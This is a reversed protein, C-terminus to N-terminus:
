KLSINLFNDEDIEAKLEMTGNKYTANSPITSSLIYKNEDFNNNPVFIYVMSDEAFSINPNLAYATFTSDQYQVKYEGISSDTCELITAKVTYDFDAKKIKNKVIIDIANCIIEDYNNM